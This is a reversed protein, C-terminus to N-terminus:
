LRMQPLSTANQANNQRPSVMYHLLLIFEYVNQHDKLLLRRQIACGRWLVSARCPSAYFVQAQGQGLQATAQTIDHVQRDVNQKEPASHTPDPSAQLRMTRMRVSSTQHDGLDETTSVTREVFHCCHTSKDADVKTSYTPHYALLASM